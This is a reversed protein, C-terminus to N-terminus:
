RDEKTDKLYYAYAGIDGQNGCNLCTYGEDWDYEHECCRTCSDETVNCIHAQMRDVEARRELQRKEQIEAQFIANCSACRIAGGVYYSPNYSVNNCITCTIM